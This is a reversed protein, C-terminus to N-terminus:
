VVEIFVTCINQGNAQQMNCYGKGMSNTANWAATDTIYFRKSSKFGNLTRKRINCFGTIYGTGSFCYYVLHVYKQMM